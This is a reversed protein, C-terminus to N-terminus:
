RRQVRELAAIDKKYCPSWFNVCYELHPRVLANYLKLMVERSKFEVSRVIYGLMKNAKKIAEGCQRSSSMESDVYVGLDKEYIGEEIETDGMHYKYHVNKNGAHLVKCKERNFTMQWTDAWNQISDLDNQIVKAAAVTNAM